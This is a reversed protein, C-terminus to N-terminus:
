TLVPSTSLQGGEMSGRLVLWGDRHTERKKNLWRAADLAVVSGFKAATSQFFLFDIWRPWCYEFKALSGYCLLGLCHSLHRSQKCFVSTLILPTSVQQPHATRQEKSPWRRCINTDFSNVSAPSSCDETGQIAM